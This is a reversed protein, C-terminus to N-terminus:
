KFFKIIFNQCNSFRISHRENITEENRTVSQSLRFNDSGGEGVSQITDSREGAIGDGVLEQLISGAIPNPVNNESLQDLGDSGVAAAFKKPTNGVANPPENEDVMIGVDDDSQGM